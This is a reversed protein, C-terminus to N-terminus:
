EFLAALLHIQPIKLLQFLLNTNSKLGEHVDKETAAWITSVDSIIIVNYNDKSACMKFSLDDYSYLTVFGRLHMSFKHYFVAQIFIQCHSYAECGM